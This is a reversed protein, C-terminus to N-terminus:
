FRGVWVVGASHPTAAVGVHSEREVRRGHLYLAVGGGATLMGTVGLWTAYTASTEGRSAIAQIESGKGGKAYRDSVASSADHADLAFYGAVALLVGGGVILAGGTEREIEARRPVVAPAAPEAVALATPQAAPPSPECRAVHAEALDRAGDSPNSSLYRRYMWIADDCDGSLRYAQALDFLLSANPALAYAEQFASIAHAYDGAAHFARGRDALARAKPPIQLKGGDARASGALAILVILAKM